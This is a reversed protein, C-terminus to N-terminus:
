RNATVYAPPPPAPKGPQPSAATEPAGPNVPTAANKRCGVLVFTELSIFLALCRLDAQANYGEAAQSRNLDRADSTPHPTIPIRRSNTLSLASTAIPGGSM